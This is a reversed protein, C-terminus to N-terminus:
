TKDKANSLSPVKALPEVSVDILNQFVTVPWFMLVKFPWAPETVLKTTSESPENADADPSLVIFIQFVILPLKILVKVPCM